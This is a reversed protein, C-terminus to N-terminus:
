IQFTNVLKSQKTLSHKEYKSPKIAKYKLASGDRRVVIRDVYGDANIRAMEVGENVNDVFKFNHQKFLQVKEGQEKHLLFYNNKM